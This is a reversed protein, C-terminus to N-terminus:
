AQVNSFKDLFAEVLTNNKDVDPGIICLFLEHPTHVFKYACISHSTLLGFRVFLVLVRSFVVNLFNFTGIAGDKIM